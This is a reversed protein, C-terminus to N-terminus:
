ATAPGIRVYDSGSWVYLGGTTATDDFVFPTVLGGGVPSAHVVTLPVGGGWDLRTVPLSGHHDSDLDHTRRSM